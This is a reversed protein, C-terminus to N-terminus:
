HEESPAELPATSLCTNTNSIKAKELIFKGVKYKESEEYAFIYTWGLLSHCSTCFLDAVTHLGTMLVRKESPGKYVNVVKDLL